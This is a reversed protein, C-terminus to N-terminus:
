ATAPTAMESENARYQSVTSIFSQGYQCQSQNPSPTGYDCIGYWVVNANRAQGVM